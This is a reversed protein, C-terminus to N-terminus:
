IVINIEVWSDFLSKSNYIKVKKGLYKSLNEEVVTKQVAFYLGGNQVLLLVFGDGKHTETVTVQNFETITNLLKTYQEILM